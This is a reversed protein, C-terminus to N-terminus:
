IRYGLARFQQDLEEGDMTERGQDNVMPEHVGFDVGETVAWPVKRIHPHISGTKHSMVGWEVFAEGYDATTLARDADIVDLPLDVDELAWRLDDFTTGGQRNKSHFTTRIVELTVLFWDEL